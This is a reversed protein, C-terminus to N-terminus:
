PQSALECDTRLSLEQATQEGEYPKGGIYWTPYGTINRADCTEKNYDCDTYNIYQFSEGFLKKQSQCHPCWDTGYMAAGNQTLCQAFSDPLGKTRCGSLAASFGLAAILALSLYALMRHQAM